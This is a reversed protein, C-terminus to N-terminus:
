EGAVGFGVLAGLAFGCGGPVVVRWDNKACHRTRPAIVEYTSDGSYELEQNGAIGKFVRM